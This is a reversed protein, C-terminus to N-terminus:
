FRQPPPHPLPVCGFRGQASKKHHPIGVVAEPEEHGLQLSPDVGGGRSLLSVKPVPLKDGELSATKVQRPGALGGLGERVGTICCQGRADARGDKIGMEM